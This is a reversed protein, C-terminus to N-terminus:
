GHEGREASSESVKVITVPIPSLRVVQEAKSGIMLHSLGTRGRSGMVILSAGIEEAVELIRTTPLGVVVRSELRSVRECAPIAQRMRELFVELKSRAAEEITEWEPLALAPEVDEEEYPLKEVLDYAVHLVVLPLGSSVAYDVGWRLVEESYESFDIAALVASGSNSRSSSGAM